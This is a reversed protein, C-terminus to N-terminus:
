YPKEIIHGPYNQEAYKIAEILAIFNVGENYWRGKDYDYRLIKYQSVVKNQNNRGQEHIIRLCPLCAKHIAVWSEKTLPM